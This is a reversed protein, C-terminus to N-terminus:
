QKVSLQSREISLPSGQKTYGMYGTGAQSKVLHAGKWTEHGDASM